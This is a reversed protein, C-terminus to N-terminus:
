ARSGSAEFASTQPARRAPNGVYVGDPQTDAMLVAGAGILCRPAVHIGDRLVAGLGVFSQEGIVVNGGTVVGTAIYCHDSVTSHHGINAGSRVIVNKGLTVGSQLVAHEFVLCHEGLPTDPWLSCRTSVYSALEYGDDRAMECLRRRAGNIEAPGVPILLEHEGPPFTSALREFAVVPLGEHLERSRHSAEVTFAVVRRRHDRTVCHWALSAMSRDGFVVLPRGAGPDMLAAM